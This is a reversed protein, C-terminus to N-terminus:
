HKVLSSTNKDNIVNPFCPCCVFMIDCPFISDYTNTVTHRLIKKTKACPGLWHSDIVYWWLTSTDIPKVRIVICGLFM